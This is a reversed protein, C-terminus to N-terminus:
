GEHMRFQNLYTGDAPNLTGSGNNQADMDHYAVGEGGLDYYACQVRGPIKQAGGDYVSDRFPTGPYRQEQGPAALSCSLLALAISTFDGLTM